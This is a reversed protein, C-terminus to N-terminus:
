MPTSTTTCKLLGSATTYDISGGSTSSFHARGPFQRLSFLTDLRADDLGEGIYCGTALIVRQENEPVHAIRSAVDRRQKRGMGGKLVFVNEITNALKDVFVTLHETRGTLLLPTRGRRVANVLDAVIM